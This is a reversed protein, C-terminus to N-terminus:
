DTIEFELESNEPLARTIDFLKRASITIEFDNSIDADINLSTQMELDTATFTLKGDKGVLLLNSLIPLAQRKEVIGVVSSLPKLLVDRKIKINM